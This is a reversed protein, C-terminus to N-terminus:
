FHRHATEQQEPLTLCDSSAAASDPLIVVESWQCPSCRSCQQQQEDSFSSKQSSENSDVGTSGGGGGVSTSVVSEVPTQNFRYFPFQTFGNLFKASSNASQPSASLAASGPPM